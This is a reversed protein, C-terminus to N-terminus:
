VYSFDSTNLIDKVNKIWVTNLNKNLAYAAKLLM